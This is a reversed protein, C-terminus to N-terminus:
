PAKTNLLASSLFRRPTFPRTPSEVGRPFTGVTRPHGPRVASVHLCASFAGSTSSTASWACRVSGGAVHVSVQTATLRSPPRLGGRLEPAPCSPCLFASPTCPQPAQPQAACVTIAVPVFTVTACTAARRTVVGAHTIIAHTYQLTDAFGWMPLLLIDTERRSFHM